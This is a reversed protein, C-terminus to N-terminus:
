SFRLAFEVAIKSDEFEFSMTEWTIGMYDNVDLQEIYNRYQVWTHAPLNEYCWRFGSECKMGRPVSVTYKSQNNVVSHSVTIENPIRTSPPFQTNSTNFM